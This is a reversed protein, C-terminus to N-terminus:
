GESKNADSNDSNASDSGSKQSDSGSEGTTTKRNKRGGRRGRRRAKKKVPEGSEDVNESVVASREPLGDGSSGSDKKKEADDRFAPGRTKNIDRDKDNNSESKDKDNSSEKDSEERRTKSSRGRSRRRSSKKKAPKDDTESEPQQHDQQSSDKESEKGSKDDSKESDPKTEASDRSKDSTEGTPRRRNRGGRRGRRRSKKVPQEETDGNTTKDLAEQLEEAEETLSGNTIIPSSKGDAIKKNGSSRDNARRGQSSKKKELISTVNVFQKEGTKSKKNKLSDWSVNAGRQNTCTIRVESGNLEAAATVTITKGTNNELNTIIHRQANSLHHAVSTCVTIEIKAVNEDACAIQLDRLVALAVSEHSMALGTGDCHPCRAFLTQKLSPKLRQRTMEILGFNSIRLVKSKARDRKLLDKLKRELSRRNQEERMDIFDIVIVGGMDRLRLQRAIEEAAELNLKLANTEANNAARFSGSNVDIAVLAEAQDIILSGGKKLDVHRAHVKQIEDEVAFEGFVGQKGRYVEISCKSRPVAVDLFEKVTVAVDESDCIIKTIDSDFVDRITRIVLDSEQYIESPTSASDIRINVAKWLRELYAVDRQMDRKTRDVGATRVIIGMDEPIILDDLIKRIKGRTEEDEIKRSIGVHSMGPMMVVLRGPISLYTTLTPGKTGIGQKTMQVVIEQGRKLCEQIPPRSRHSSRRGVQETSGKSRPFFKPHLDSIHLFGNKSGGFDIFAAQISPEINSIRGKYISGVHSAASVRETYLEELRNNEIVAIRCEHGQVNNILMLKSM